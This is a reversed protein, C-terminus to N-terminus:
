AKVFCNNKRDWKKIGKSEEVAIVERMCKKRYTDPELYPNVKSETIDEALYKKNRMDDGSLIVKYLSEKIISKEATKSEGWLSTTLRVMKKKTARKVYKELLNLFKAMANKQQMRQEVREHNSADFDTSIFVSAEKDKLNVRVRAYWWQMNDKVRYAKFLDQHGKVTPALSIHVKKDLSSVLAIIEKFNSKSPNKIYSIIDADSVKYKDWGTPLKPVLKRKRLVETMIRDQVSNM